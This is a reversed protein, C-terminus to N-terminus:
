CRAIHSVQGISAGEIPKSAYPPTPYLVVEAVGRYNGPTCKPAGKGFGISVPKPFVPGKQVPVYVTRWQGRGVLKGKRNYISMRVKARVLGPASGICAAQMTVNISKRGKHKSPHAHNVHFRCRGLIAVKGTLDVQNLPDANAYDYANASGGLVPDISIFRGVAPVYSRVGMQIVGSPLQTRRAKSGLWGLEADGGSLFDQQKPNGYEDFQQTSLLKTAEPDIDAIAVVNGHMDALQLTVEGGSTQIAGLSGGLAAINRIWKSEGEDTWAPSDSPGAYHYIESGGESGGTRTRKRQRLSADLEYTNTIGGQAQSRTLDNVYYSTTLEGENAVPGSAKFALKEGAQPGVLMWTSSASVEVPNTGFSAKGKTQVPLELAEEDTFEHRFSSVPLSMDWLCGAEAEFDLYIGMGSATGDYDSIGAEISGCPLKEGKEGGKVAYLACSHLEFSEEIGEAGSVEGSSEMECELRVSWSPFNLVLDGESAFSASELELESLTEGGIQWSEEPGAYRAPLTTIRGLNDYQLGDGILRDASDYAYTQKAMESETSCGGGEGAAYTTKATRNSDKDFAYARTTCQGGETDRVLTLRGAKDYSYEQSSLTSEQRLVQGSTSYERSFDLWACATSCYTEKEYRLGVAAGAEDYTIRQALGNPLLQETM